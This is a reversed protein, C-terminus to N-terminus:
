HALEAQLIRKGRAGKLIWNVPATRSFLRADSLSSGRSATYFQPPFQADGSSVFEAEREFDFNENPESRQFITIGRWLPYSLLFM